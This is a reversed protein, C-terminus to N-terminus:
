NVKTNQGLHFMCCSIASNSFAYILANIFVIEFDTKIYYPNLEDSLQM